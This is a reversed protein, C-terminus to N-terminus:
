SLKLVETFDNGTYSGKIEVTPSSKGKGASGVDDNSTLRSNKWQNDLSGNRMIFEGNGYM